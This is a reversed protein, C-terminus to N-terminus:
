MGDLLLMNFIPIVLCAGPIKSVFEEGDILFPSSYNRYPNSSVLGIRPCTVPSDLEWSDVAIAGLWFYKVSFHFAAKSKAASLLPFYILPFEQINSVMPWSDHRMTNHSIDMKLSVDQLAPFKETALLIDLIQWSDFCTVSLGLQCDLYVGISVTSLEPFPTGSAALHDVLGHLSDESNPFYYNSLM